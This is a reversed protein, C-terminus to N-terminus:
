HGKFYSLKVKIFNRKPDCMFTSVEKQNTSGEKCFQVNSFCMVILDSTLHCSTTVTHPKIKCKLAGNSKTYPLHITLQDEGKM